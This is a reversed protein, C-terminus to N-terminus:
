LGNELAKRIDNDHFMGDGGIAYACQMELVGGAFTMKMAAKDKVNVLRIATLGERVAQKGDEDQCIVRLAMSVRQGSLNDIFNLANFDDGFSAWDVDYPIALGCIEEIEKQRAPLLTQQLEEIKKRAQLSM